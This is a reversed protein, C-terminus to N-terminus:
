RLPEVPVSLSGIHFEVRESRFEHLGGVEEILHSHMSGQYSLQYLARRSHQTSDWGLCNKEKSFSFATRPTYRQKSTMCVGGYIGCFYFHTLITVVAYGYM